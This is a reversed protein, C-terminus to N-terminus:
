QAVGNTLQDIKEKGQAVTLVHCIHNKEKFVDYTIMTMFGGGIVEKRQKITYNKYIQKKM